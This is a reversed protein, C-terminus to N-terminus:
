LLQMTSQNLRAIGEAAPTIHFTLELQSCMPEAAQGAPGVEVMLQGSDEVQPLINLQIHVTDLSLTNHHVLAAEPVEVQRTGKATSGPISFRRNVPTLAPSAGADEAAEPYPSFYGCFHEMANRELQAQAQQVAQSVNAVLSSLELQM